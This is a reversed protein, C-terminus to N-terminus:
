RLSVISGGPCGRHRRRMGSRLSGGMREFERTLHGITDKHKKPWKSQCGVTQLSAWPKYTCLLTAVASLREPFLAAPAM